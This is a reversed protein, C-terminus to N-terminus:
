GAGLYVMERGTSCDFMSNLKSPMLEGSSQIFYYEGTGMGYGIIGGRPNILGACWDVVM